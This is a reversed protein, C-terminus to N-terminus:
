QGRLKRTFVPSRSRDGVFIAMFREKIGPHSLTCMRRDNRWFMIEDPGNSVALYRDGRDVDDYCQLLQDRVPLPAGTRDFERLTAKVLDTETVKRLYTLELAMDESWDLARGERTYFRAQYLPLGLFRLTAQGRLEAGPFASSVPVAQAIVPCFLLGLLLLIRPM